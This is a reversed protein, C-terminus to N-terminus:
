YLKAFDNKALSHRHQRREEREHVIFLLQRKHDEAYCSDDFMLAQLSPLHVGVPVCLTGM